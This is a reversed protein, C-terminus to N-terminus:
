PTPATLPPDQPLHIHIPFFPSDIVDETKNPENTMKRKRLIPKKKAIEGLTFM